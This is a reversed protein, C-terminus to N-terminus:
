WWAGPYKGSVDDKVLELDDDGLGSGHSVITWGAIRGVPRVTGGQAVIKGSRSDVVPNKKGDKVYLDDGAMATQAPNAEKTSDLLVKGGGVDVGM